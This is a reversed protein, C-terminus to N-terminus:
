ADKRVLEGVAEVSLGRLEGDIIKKWLKRNNVKYHAMLTGEPLDKFGYKTCADDTSPDDIIWLRKMFVNDLLCDDYTLSSDEEMPHMETVWNIRQNLLMNFAAQHITDKTWRIYFEGRDDRRYILQNPILIPSVIEHLSKSYYMRVPENKKMAIFNVDIAPCDVFSVAFLGQTEDNEDFVVDYIPIM